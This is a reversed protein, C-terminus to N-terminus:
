RRQSPAQSHAGTSFHGAGYQSLILEPRDHAQPACRTRHLPANDGAQGGM